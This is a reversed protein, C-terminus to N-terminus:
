SQALRITSSGFVKSGDAGIVAVEDGKEGRRRQGERIDVLLSCSPLITIQGYAAKHMRPALLDTTFSTPRTM